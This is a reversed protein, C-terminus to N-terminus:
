SMKIIEKDRTKYTEATSVLLTHIPIGAFSTIRHINNIIIQIKSPAM